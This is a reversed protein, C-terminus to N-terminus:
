STLGLNLAMTMPKLFQSKISVKKLKIIKIEDKLM